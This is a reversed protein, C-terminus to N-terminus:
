AELLMAGTPAKEGKDDPNPDGDGVEQGTGPTGAGAEFQKVMDVARQTAGGNRQEVRWVLGTQSPRSWQTQKPYGHVQHHLGPVM